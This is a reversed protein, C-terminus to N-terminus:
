NSCQITGLTGIEACFQLIIQIVMNSLLVASWFKIDGELTIKNDLTELIKRKVDVYFCEVRFAFRIWFALHPHPVCLPLHQPDYTSLLTANKDVNRQHFGLKFSRSVFYEMVCHFSEVLCDHVLFRIMKEKM